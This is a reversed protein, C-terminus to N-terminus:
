SKGDGTLVQYTYKPMKIVGAKDRLWEIYDALERLDNPHLTVSQNKDARNRLTEPSIHRKPETMRVM